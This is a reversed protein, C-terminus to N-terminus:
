WYMTSWPLNMGALSQLGLVKVSRKVRLMVEVDLGCEALIWRHLYRIPTTEM